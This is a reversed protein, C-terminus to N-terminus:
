AAALSRTCAFFGNITLRGHRPDDSLLQPARLDGSHLVTGPYAIMRNWRPEVELVKEFWDNSECMYGRAIGTEVHFRRPPLESASRVLRAIDEPPRKPMYFGTGGLATNRFLYLVSAAVLHPAAVQLRDVHCFCQWPALSGPAVTTMALRGMSHLTRRGGLRRRLHLAFFADLQAAAAAPLPLEPGPYANYDREGFADRHAEAYEVWREPELLADDIVYCAHRPGIALREVQPNPNFM